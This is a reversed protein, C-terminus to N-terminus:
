EMSFVPLGFSSGTAGLTVGSDSHGFMAWYFSERLSFAGTTAPHKRKWNVTGADDGYRVGMG